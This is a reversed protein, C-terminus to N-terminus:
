VVLYRGPQDCEHCTEPVIWDSFHTTDLDVLDPADEYEDVFRDIALELHEMCVVYM